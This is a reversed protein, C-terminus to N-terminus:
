NVYIPQNSAVVDGLKWVGRERELYEYYSPPRRGFTMRVSAAGGQVRVEAIRLDASDRRLQGRMTGFIATVASTCSEGSAAETGAKPGYDEAVSEALPLALLACAVAGDGEAAAAYYRRVLASAAGEDRSGAMQPFPVGDVDREGHYSDSDLDYDIPLEVAPLTAAVESRAVTSSARTGRSAGGCAGVSLATLSLGAALLSASAAKGLTM